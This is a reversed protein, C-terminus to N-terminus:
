NLIKDIQENRYDEIRMFYEDFMLKLIWDGGHVAYCHKDESIVYNYVVGLKYYWGGKICRCKM